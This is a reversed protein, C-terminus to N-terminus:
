DDLYKTLTLRMGIFHNCLGKSCTFQIGFGSRWDQSSKRRNGRTRRRARTDTTNILTTYKERVLNTSAIKQEVITIKEVDLKAQEEVRKLQEEQCCATLLAKSIEERKQTSIERRTTATNYRAIASKQNDLAVKHKAELEEIIPKKALVSGFRGELPQTFFDTPLSDPSSPPSEMTSSKSPDSNKPLDISFVM